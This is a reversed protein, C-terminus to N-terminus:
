PTNEWPDGEMERVCSVGKRKFRLPWREEGERVGQADAAQPLQTHNPVGRGRGGGRPGAGSAGGRGAGLHRGSRALGRAGPWTIAGGSVHGEASAGRTGRRAGDSTRAGPGPRLIAAGLLLLSPPPPPPPARRHAASSRAATAGLGAPATDSGAVTANSTRGPPTTCVKEWFTPGPTVAAASGSAQALLGRPRTTPFPQQRRPLGQSRPTPGGHPASQPHSAAQLSPAPDSDAAGAEEAQGAHGGLLGTGGLGLRTGAKPPLASVAPAPLQLRRSRPELDRRLDTEEGRHSPLPCVNHKGGDCLTGCRERGQPTLDPGGTRLGCAVALGAAGWSTPSTEAGGMRRRRTQSLISPLQKNFALRCGTVTGFAKHTLGMKCIFLCLSLSTQVQGLAVAACIRTGLHKLKWLPGTPTGFGESRSPHTNSPIHGGGEREKNGLLWM